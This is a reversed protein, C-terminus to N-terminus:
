ESGLLEAGLMKSCLMKAGLMKANQMEALSMKVSMKAGYINSCIYSKSGLINLCM